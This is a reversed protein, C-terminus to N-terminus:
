GQGISRALEHYMLRWTTLTQVLNSRLRASQIILIKAFKACTIDRRSRSRQDKSRSSRCCKPHWANLSQVFNLCFRTIRPQTISSKARKSSNERAIKPTPWFQCLKKLPAHVLSWWVKGPCLTIDCCQMETEANPYIEANEFASVVGFKSSKSGEM